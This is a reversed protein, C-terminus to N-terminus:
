DMQLARGLHGMKGWSGMDVEKRHLEWHDRRSCDVPPREWLAEAALEQVRWERRPVNM